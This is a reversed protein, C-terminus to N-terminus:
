ISVQSMAVHVLARDLLEQCFDGLGFSAALLLDRDDLSPVPPDCFELLLQIQQM